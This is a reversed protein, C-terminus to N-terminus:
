NGALRSRTEARAAMAFMLGLVVAGAGSWKLLERLSARDDYPEGELGYVSPSASTFSYRVLYRGDGMDLKIDVGRGDRIMQSTTQEDLEAIGHYEFGNGMCQNSLTGLGFVLAFGLVAGIIFKPIM